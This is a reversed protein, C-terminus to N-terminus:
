SQISSIRRILSPIVVGWIAGLRTDIFYISPRFEGIAVKVKLYREKLSHGVANLYTEVLGQKSSSASFSKSRM